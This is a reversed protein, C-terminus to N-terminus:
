RSSSLLLCSLSPSLSLRSLSIPTFVRGGRGVCTASRNMQNDGSDGHLKNRTYQSKTDARPGKKIAKVKEPPWGRTSDVNNLKDNLEINNAWFTEQWDTKNPGYAANYERLLTCFSHTIFISM